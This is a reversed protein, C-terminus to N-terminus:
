PRAGPKKIAPDRSNGFNYLRRLLRAAPLPGRACLAHFAGGFRNGSCPRHRNATINAGKLAKGTSDHITGSLSGGEQAFCHASLFMFLLFLKLYKM